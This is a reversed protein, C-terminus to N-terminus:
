IKKVFRSLNVGSSLQLKKKIRYRAMEVSKPSIHLMNAVEKNSLNMKLYACHKLENQSLEPHKDSLKDFFDPHIKEFSVIFGKLHEEQNISQDILFILKRSQALGAPNLNSRMARLGEKLKLMVNNKESILMTKIFLERNKYDLEARLDAKNKPALEPSNKMEM